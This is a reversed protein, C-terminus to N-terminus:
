VAPAAAAPTGAAAFSPLLRHVADQLTAPRVPKELYEDVLFTRFAENRYVAGKYLSSMVIIRISKTAPDAKLTRCLERGDLRPMLADTLILDPVVSRAIQAASDPRDLVLTSFGVRRLALAALSLVRPDDDIIMALPRAVKDRDLAHLQVEAQVTDNRRREWLSPPASMWFDNRASVQQDCACGGCNPCRFSRDTSLCDCFGAHSLDFSIRCRVCPRVVAIEPSASDSM